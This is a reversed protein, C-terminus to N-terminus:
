KGVCFRGFINNLIDEATTEGVLEGLHDLTERLYLSIVEATPTAELEALAQTLTEYARQMAHFQRETALLATDLSFNELNLHAAIRARLDDLGAGTLASVNVIASQPNRIASNVEGWESIRFGSDANPLDIKNALVLRPKDGLGHFIALDEDTTPASSDIVFLVLDSHEIETRTRQMGIAEVMDSGERRSREPDEVPDEVERLGATDTLLVPFGEIEIWETLTDRTTGPIDTVIARERRLLANLLSSKGVNARGVIAIKYGANLGRGFDYSKLILASKELESAIIDRIQSVPTKDIEDESFDIEAEILTLLDAIGRRIGEIKDYLEGKLNRAAAKLALESKAEIAAAVAEAQSLSIRGNVFARKTFEGPEAVRAGLSVLRDLLVRSSVFGGHCVIEVMEESTYSRPALYPIATIEDIPHGTSDYAFDYFLRRAQEVPLNRLSPMIKSVLSISGPGSVRIVALASRGPPTAIACIIDSKDDPMIPKM